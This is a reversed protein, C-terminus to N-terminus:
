VSLPCWVPSVPRIDHRRCGGYLWRMQRNHHPAPSKIEGGVDGSAACRAMLGPNESCGTKGGRRTSTASGSCMSGTNRRGIRQWCMPSLFSPPKVTWDRTVKPPSEASTGGSQICSVESLMTSTLPFFPHSEWGTRAARSM